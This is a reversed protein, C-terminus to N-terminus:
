FSSRRRVFRLRGEAWIEHNKAGQSM